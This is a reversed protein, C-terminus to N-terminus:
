TMNQYCLGVMKKVAVETHVSCISTTDASCDRAQSFDEVWLYTACVCVCVCVCMCVCVCVRASLCVFMCLCVCLYVCVGSGKDLSCVHLQCVLQSTMHWDVGGYGAPALWSCVAEVHIYSTLDPLTM